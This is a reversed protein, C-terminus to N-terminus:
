FLDIHPKHNRVTVEEMNFKVVKEPLTGAVVRKTSIREGRKNAETKLVDNAKIRDVFAQRCRSPRLHEIRVNMRKAIVRGRVQKNVTIGAARKNLNFIKGTRGHYFFHPMGKHIASDVMVDVYDGVKFTRLYNTMRIAGKRGM